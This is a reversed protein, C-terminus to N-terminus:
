KYSAFGVEDRDIKSLIRIHVEEAIRHEESLQHLLSREYDLIKALLKEAEQWVEHDTCDTEYSMKFQLLRNAYYNEVLKKANVMCVHKGRGIELQGIHEVAEKTIKRYIKTAAKIILADSKEAHLLKILLPLTLGQALLTFLITIITLFVILDRNPFPTTESLYTPLAIALALSVLGRM